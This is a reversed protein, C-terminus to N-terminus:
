VINFTKVHGLDVSSLPGQLQTSNAQSPNENTSKREASIPIELINGNVCADNNTLTTEEKPMDKVYSAAAAVAAEVVANNVLDMPAGVSAVAAAAVNIASSDTQDHSISHNPHDNVSTNLISQEKAKLTEETENCSDTEKLHALIKKNQRRYRMRRWINKKLLWDHGDKGKIYTQNYTFESGKPLTLWTKYSRTSEVAIEDMELKVQLDTMGNNAKPRKRILACSPMDNGDLPSNMRMDINYHRKRSALTSFNMDSYYQQHQKGNTKSGEPVMDSTINEPLNDSHLSNHFNSASPSHDTDLSQTGVKQELNQSHSHDRNLYSAEKNQILSQSQHRQVKSRAKKLLEHDRLNNRRAIMIRRMLREEDNENGKTFNRCAYRLKQGTELAMWKKFTPAMRIIREDFDAPRAGMKPGPM